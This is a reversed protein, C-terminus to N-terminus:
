ANRQGPNLIGNILRMPVLLLWINAGGKPGGRDLNVRKQANRVNNFKEAKNIKQLASKLARNDAKVGKIKNNYAQLEKFSLNPLRNTSRPQIGKSKALLGTLDFDNYPDTPYVYNNQTGGEVPDVSVFRGFSPIYVRAGMQVPVLAFDVEGAKEHQGVWGYTSGNATNSPLTSSLKNGYADYDFNGLKTGAKDTTVFTDGHINPLSWMHQNVGSANPRITLLAGGPLSLYKEIVQWSSNILYDPTDGSGTFGYWNQNTMTWNWNSIADTERYTIRGQADRNYYVGNGNGGSDHQVLSMNRDLADYSLYLPSANSGIQVTNGHDDYIPTNVTADSSSVLRDAYDYCYTTAASDVTLKVRNSDKGANPNIGVGSGCSSDLAGFDYAYTHSGITAGTLRSAKDYSYSSSLTNAGVVRSDTLIQGSQSRTVTDSATSSDGLTYNYATTRSNNDRTISGLTQSGATPYDVSSLRGYSDYHPTAITTGDLKQDTLRDTSDYTFSETGLPGSRGTMKGYDDYTTTTTNGVTDVYSVTRGLLDVGTAITGSSDSTNTVLPNGSVSYNNTITRGARGNITPIVTSTIRGRSDYTTCTWSDSNYRTAVVDGSENYITESTRSTQSGTGDPDAETKGKPLGAQHYAETTGTTCPDDRTDNATYHQYTTASGGPLTKSVQRMYSGSGGPTEYTSATQYNLGSPDITQNAVLGYEPSSYSTTSTVNGLTADYATESTKLSYDPSFYTATNATESGGPPTAYLTFTSSTGSLNYYDVRIRHVTTTDTNNYTYATHSRAAGNAWDDVVLQDDIWMRVGDDSYLRFNWNGTTALRMKGTMTMGWSGSQGPIPNTTGFGHSITGDTAINTAHLLPAGTLSATTVGSGGANSALYAVALGTLSEDYATTTKPVQNVYTSTPRRDSGYWASPAPGYSEVVRDEADYITTSKLGAPDTKSLELDKTSDWATVTALNAVDTETTTRLLCDYDVRKSFGNPESTGTIHLQTASPLYEFTNVQRNASATPAPATISSVRGISDYTLETNDTSNDARVSATIADNALSDRTSNIRGLSDYGYDTLESGPKEVRAVGGYLNYYLRTINGDTTQFACLMGDPAAYFGSPVPCVTSNDNISKYYLSGYRASTVSDTITMLRSPDGSYTYQLAAPHQDDTPATLSTLKGEADFKYTRGDTDIFTYTNDANHVLQGDENVPPKYGGSTYTYEHTGGTSDELVVSNATTRLRQYNVNGDVDIGLQWGAPVVNAQQTLWKNPVENNTTPGPTPLGPGQLLLAIQGNSAHEYYEVTIPAAQGATLSIGTGWATTPSSQDTSWSDFVTQQSGGTTVKVKAGGTLSTGFTYAGTTPVTVYGTWRTMFNGSLGQAPGASGWNYTMKTDSRGMMLRTPDTNSSPFTHTGDDTYYRGNLGYQTQSAVVDTRLWDPKVVQESVAGKVYLAAYSNGTAEEYTVTIPVVQGATLSISSGNYCPTSGYCGGGFSTGNVNISIADDNYAGFQYSGTAPAVFYGTWRGFFWDSTVGPGPSDTNWNYQINQENRSLVPTGTPVGSSFSYGSSVNWYDATLGTKSKSPTNYNLSLGINGGLANMSHTSTSSSANGTALDIGMPGVTDYAQTSDKGTRLDVKFSRHWTAPTIQGTSSNGRTLAHWYYTTGDQLIGDPVTWQTGSLWGSNVIAGTEADPSTSVRFNYQVADSTDADTVTNVRLTPQTTVMVQQDAPDVASTQPTPTDYYVTAYLDNFPKYSTNVGEDGRLSWVAGYDSGNIAAQLGNTFDVDFDTNFASYGYQTGLCNYSICPAHGMYIGSYATTGGAGTQYYGHVSADLITTGALTNYPFQFYTRWYKWGSNYVAGTNAYCTSSGCSYGDSKYMWYSTSDSGFSPDIKMPFSDAPQANMWDADMRVNIGTDTSSQTVHQESIVGQKNVDLSLPSFAFESPMGEITLQGLKTPHQIVKGGSIDFNFDTQAYKSKVVIIEKVLEGRLQYQLDVNPWADKYVITHDDLKTPMVDAAGVPKMIITKGSVNITLGDSLSKMQSSVVGAKGSFTGTSVPDPTANFLWQFFNQSGPKTDAHVANDIKQWKGSGDQYNQQLTSYQLTKTGDKNMFTSTFPTRKGVLEHDPTRDVPNKTSTTSTGSPTGALQQDAAYNISQAPLVSPTKPSNASNISLALAM